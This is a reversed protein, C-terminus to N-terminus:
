SDFWRSPRCALTCDVGALTTKEKIIHVSPMPKKQQPLRPKRAAPTLPRQATYGKHDGFHARTGWGPVDDVATVRHLTRLLLNGQPKPRLLQYIVLAASLVPDVLSTSAASLAERVGNGRGGVAPSWVTASRSIESFKRIIQLSVRPAALTGQATNYAVM